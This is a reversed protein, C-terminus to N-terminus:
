SSPVDFFRRPDCGNVADCTLVRAPTTRRANVSHSIQGTRVKRTGYFQLTTVTHSKEQM